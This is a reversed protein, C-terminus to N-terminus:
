AKLHMSFLLKPFFGKVLFTALGRREGMLKRWNTQLWSFFM